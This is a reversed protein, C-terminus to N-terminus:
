ERKLFKEIEFGILTLQRQLIMKNKELKSLKQLQHITPKLYEGLFSNCDMTVKDKKRLEELAQGQTNIFKQYYEIQQNGLEVLQKEKQADDYQKKAFLFFILILPLSLLKSIHNATFTGNLAYHFLLLETTVIIAPLQHCSLTLFFLYVYILPFFISNLNGTAGILLLFSLTVVVIEDITSSPLLWLKAKNLKKLIFYLVIGVAFAQLAYKELSSISLWIYVCFIALSVFFIQWINSRFDTDLQKLKKEQSQDFSLTPMIIKSTDDYRSLLALAM